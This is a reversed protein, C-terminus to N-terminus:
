EPVNYMKVYRTIDFKGYKGSSLKMKVMVVNNPYGSPAMKFELNDLSYGNYMKKDFTWIVASTQVPNLPDSEDDIPYYYIKLIGDEAYMRIRTDTNDVLDIANGDMSETNIPTDTVSPNDTGESSFKAGTIESTVKKMVIDGVQRAYSEGRVRYYLTVVNSIVLTSVTVFISLLAFCVIMEVLTMGKNNKKKNLKRSIFKM